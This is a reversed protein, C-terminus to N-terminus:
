RMVTDAQRLFEDPIDVGIATATQINIHLFSEATEVPLDAPRSGKFIQDVLRAAQQGM